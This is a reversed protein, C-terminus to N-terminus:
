KEGGKKRYVEAGIGTILVGIYCVLKLWTFVKEKNM